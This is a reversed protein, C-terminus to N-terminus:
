LSLGSNSLLVCNVFSLESPDPLYLGEQSWVLSCTAHFSSWFFAIFFLSESLVLSCFIMFLMGILIVYTSTYERIVDRIIFNFSYGGIVYMWVYICICNSSICISSSSICAILYSLIILLYSLLWPCSVLSVFPNSMVNCTDKWVNCTVLCGSYTVSNVSFGNSSVSYVCANSSTVLLLYIADFHFLNSTSIIDWIILVVNTQLKCYLTVDSLIIRAIIGFSYYSTTIVTSSILEVL